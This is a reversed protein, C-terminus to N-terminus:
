CPCIVNYLADFIEYFDETYCDNDKDEQEYEVVAAQAAALTNFTDIETGTARDRTIYRNYTKGM